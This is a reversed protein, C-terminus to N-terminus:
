GLMQFNSRGFVMFQVIGVCVCKGVYMSGLRMGVWLKSRAKSAVAAWRTGFKNQVCENPSHHLPFPGRFLGKVRVFMFLSFHM